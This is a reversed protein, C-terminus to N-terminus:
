NRIAALVNQQHEWAQFLFPTEPPGTPQLEAAFEDFTTKGTIRRAEVFKFKECGCTCAQRAKRLARIWERCDKRMKRIEGFTEFTRVGDFADVFAAIQEGTWSALQNGKVIYKAVEKAFDAQRADKVKVIACDQGVMKAWAVALERADIWRADILAHLHLHWGRSENTVELCYFGSSWSRALKTRRLRSFAKKFSVVQKKSLEDTNRVTLVVHKPQHVQSIWWTVVQARDNALRPQCLPCFFHECRNSYIAVKGCSLCTRSGQKTHCESIRGSLDIRNAEWLKAVVTAHFHINPRWLEGPSQSTTGRTELQLSEGASHVDISESLERPDVDPELVPSGDSWADADPPRITAEPPVTSSLCM